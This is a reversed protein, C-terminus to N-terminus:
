EVRARKAAPEEGAREQARLVEALQAEVQERKQREEELRQRMEDLQAQILDNLHWPKCSASRLSVQLDGMAQDM